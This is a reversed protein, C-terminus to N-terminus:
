KHVFLLFALPHHLADNEQIGRGRVLDLVLRVVLLSKDLLDTAPLSVILPLLLRRRGQLRLVGNLEALRFSVVPLRAPM